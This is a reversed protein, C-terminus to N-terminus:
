ERGLNRIDALEGRNVIGARPAAELVLLPACLLAVMARQETGIIMASRFKVVAHLIAVLGTFVQKRLPERRADDQKAFPKVWYGVPDITFDDEFSPSCVIVQVPEGLWGQVAVTGSSLWKDSVEDVGYLPLFLAIPLILTRTSIGISSILEHLISLVETEHFEKAFDVGVKSFYADTRVGMKWFYSSMESILGKEAPEVSVTHGSEPADNMTLQNVLRLNDGVTKDNVGAENQLLDIDFMPPDEDRLKGQEIEEQVGRINRRDQTGDGIRVVNLDDRDHPHRSLVDLLKHLACTGPRYLLM